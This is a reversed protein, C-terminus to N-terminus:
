RLKLEIYDCGEFNNCDSEPVIYADVIDMDIMGENGVGHVELNDNQGYYSIKQLENILEGLKM